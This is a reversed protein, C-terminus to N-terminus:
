EAGSHGDRLLNRVEVTLDHLERAVISLHLLQLALTATARFIATM